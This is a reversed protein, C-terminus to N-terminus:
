FAPQVREIGAHLRVEIAGTSQGLIQSSVLHHTVNAIRPQTRMGIMRNCRSDELVAKARCNLKVKNSVNGPSNRVDGAPPAVVRREAGRPLCPPVMRRKAPM